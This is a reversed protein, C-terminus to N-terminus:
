QDQGKRCPNERCSGLLSDQRAIDFFRGAALWEDTGDDECFIQAGSNGGVVEAEVGKLDVALGLDDLTGIGAINCSFYGDIGCARYLM